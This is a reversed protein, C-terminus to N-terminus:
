APEGEFPVESPGVETYRSLHDMDARTISDVSRVATFIGRPGPVHPANPVLAHIMEHRITRAFLEAVDVIDELLLMGYWDGMEWHTCGALQPRPDGPSVAAPIKVDCEHELERRSVVRVPLGAKGDDITVYRAIELGHAAWDDAASRLARAITM